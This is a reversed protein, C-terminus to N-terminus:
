GLPRKGLTHKRGGSGSQPPKQESSPKLAHDVDRQVCKGLMELSFRYHENEARLKEIEADRGVTAAEIMDDILATQEPTM